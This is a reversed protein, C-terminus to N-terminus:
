DHAICAEEYSWLDNVEGEELIKKIIAYDVKPPIDVSFLTSINSGEYSCGYKILKDLTQQIVEKSFFIVRVTSHGSQELLETVYIEGNRDEVKLVDGWSYDTAYFLINKLKYYDGVREAWASEIAYEENLDYYEFLIKEM